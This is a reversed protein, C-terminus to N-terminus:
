TETIVAQSNFFLRVIFQFLRVILALVGALFPENAKRPISREATRSLRM